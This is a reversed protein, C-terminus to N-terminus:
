GGALERAGRLCEALWRELYAEDVFRQQRDDLRYRVVGAASIEFLESPRTEVDNLLHQVYSQSLGSLNAERMESDRRTFEVLGPNPVPVEIVLQSITMQEVSAIASPSDGDAAHGVDAIIAAGHIQMRTGESVAEALPVRKIGFGVRLGKVTGEFWTATVPRLGHRVAVAGLARRVRVVRWGVVGAFAAIPGLIVVFWFWTSSLPLM